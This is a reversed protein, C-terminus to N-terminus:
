NKRSRITTLINEFDKDDLYYHANCYHCILENHGIIKMDEIENSDFTILKSIFNVKSCRCFFDIPTSKIIEFEFPLLTKLLEINNAGKVIIDLASENKMIKREIELLDAFSAGPMAQIIIGGSKTILGEDDEVADIFVSSPIQESQHLYNALDSSIDGVNLQVIGTQPEPENYLIRSVRLFGNFLDNHLDERYNSTMEVFGRVEGLKVAEAFIRPLNSDSLVEIIIREEGKLFMSTLSAAALTKALYISAEGKLNHRHVASQAADTNKIIAVRYRGDKSLLRHARDRNKFKEKASEM